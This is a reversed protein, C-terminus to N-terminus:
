KHKKITSVYFGGKGLLMLVLAILVAILYNFVSYTVVDAIELSNAFQNIQQCLTPLLIIQVAGVAVVILLVEIVDSIVPLYGYRKLPITEKKNRKYFFIEKGIMMLLLCVLTFVVFASM